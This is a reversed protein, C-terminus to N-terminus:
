EVISRVLKFIKYKEDFNESWQFLQDFIGVLQDPLSKGVIVCQTYEFEIYTLFTHGFRAQTELNFMM